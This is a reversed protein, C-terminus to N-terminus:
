VGGRAGRVAVDQPFLHRQGARRVRRVAGQPRGPRCGAAARLSGLRTAALINSSTM